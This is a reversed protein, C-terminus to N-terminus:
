RQATISRIDYCLDFEMEEYLGLFTNMIRNAALHGGDDDTDMLLVLMQSQSCGTLVDNKRLTMQIAQSLQRMAHQIQEVSAEARHRPTLTLLLTQVDHGTREAQKEAFRYISGFNGFDVQMVGCSNEECCGYHLESQIDSLGEHRAGCSQKQLLESLVQKFKEDGSTCKCIPLMTCDEDSFCVLAAPVASLHAPLASHIEMTEAISDWGALLLLDPKEDGCDGEKGCVFVGFYPSLSERIRQATKACETIVVISAM